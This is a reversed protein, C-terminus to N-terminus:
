CFRRPLPRNSRRFWHKVASPLPSLLQDILARIQIKVTTTATARASLRARTESLMAWVPSSVMRARTAAALLAKRPWSSRSSARRAGRATEMIGSRISATRPPAPCDGRRRDDSREDVVPEGGLQLALDVGVHRQDLGAVDQGARERLALIAGPQRPPHRRRAGSVAHELDAQREHAGIKGALQRTTCRM